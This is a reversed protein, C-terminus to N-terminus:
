VNVARPCGQFKQTPLIQNQGVQTTRLSTKAHSPTQSSTRKGEIIEDFCVESNSTELSFFSFCSPSSSSSFCSSFDDDDDDGHKQKLGLLWLKAALLWGLHLQPTQEVLPWPFETNQPGERAVHGMMNSRTEDPRFLRLRRSSSPCASRTM